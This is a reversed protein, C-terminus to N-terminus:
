EAKALRPQFFSVRCSLSRISIRHRHYEITKCVKEPQAQQIWGQVIHIVGCREEKTSGEQEEEDDDIEYRMVRPNDMDETIPHRSDKGELSPHLTSALFQTAEEYSTLLDGQLITV